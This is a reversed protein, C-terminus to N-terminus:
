WCCSTDFGKLYSVKWTNNDRKLKVLYGEEVPMDVMTWSLSATDTSISLNHIILRDWYDDVSDQFFTCPDAEQFGFNIENYYKVTDHKLKYDTRRVIERYYSLLDDTFLNTKRLEAIYNPLKTTDLGVQLTDKVMVEFGLEQNQSEHWKYIERVVNKIQATDNNTTQNSQSNQSSQTNNGCSYLLFAISM